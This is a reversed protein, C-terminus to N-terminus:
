GLVLFLATTGVVIMALKLCLWLARWVVNALPDTGRIWVLVGIWFVVTGATIVDIDTM